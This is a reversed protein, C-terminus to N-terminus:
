PQEDPDTSLSNEIDDVSAAWAKSHEVPVNSRQGPRQCQRPLRDDCTLFVEARLAEASAGLGADHLRRGRVLLEASVQM